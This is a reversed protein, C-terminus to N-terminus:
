SKPFLNARSRSGHPYAGNPRFNPRAVQYIVGSPHNTSCQLLNCNNQFRITAWQKNQALAIYGTEKTDNQKHNNRKKNTIM